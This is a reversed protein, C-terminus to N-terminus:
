SMDNDAASNHIDGYDASGASAHADAAAATAASHQQVAGGDKTSPTTTNPLLPQWLTGQPFWSRASVGLQETPTEQEWDLLRRRDEPQEPGRM